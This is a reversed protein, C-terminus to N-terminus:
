LVIKNRFYNSHAQCFGRFDRLSRWTPLFIGLSLAKFYLNRTIDSINLTPGQFLSGNVTCHNFM